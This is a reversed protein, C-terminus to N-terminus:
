LCGTNQLWLDEKKSMYSTLQDSHDHDAVHDALSLDSASHLHRVVFYAASLQVGVMM